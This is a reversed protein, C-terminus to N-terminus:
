PPRVPADAGPRLAGDPLRPVASPLPGRPGSQGSRGRRRHPGDRGLLPHDRPLPLLTGALEHPCPAPSPGEEHGQGMFEELTTRELQQTSTVYSGGNILANENSAQFKVQRLPKAQSFAILKALEILESASAPFTTTIAHGVAKAVTDLQGLVNSPDIQERLDRLFDQQRAVRVFDSDTHRYRVYDLANEYCLKQYGPELNISTYDTEPTGVNQNYYRHDVMVYACGLTDVLRIFGAFNVDVIGNLKLSPFM